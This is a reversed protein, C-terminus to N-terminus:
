PHKQDPRPSAEIVESILGAIEHLDAASGHPHVAYTGDLRAFELVEHAELGAVMGVMMKALAEIAIARAEADTFRLTARLRAEDQDGGISNRVGPKEMWVVWQPPADKGMVRSAGVTENPGKVFPGNWRACEFRRCFGDLKERVVDDTTM